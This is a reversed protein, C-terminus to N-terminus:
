IHCLLDEQMTNCYSVTVTKKAVWSPRKKLATKMASPTTSSSSFYAGKTAYNDNPFPITFKMKASASTTPFENGCSSDLNEKGSSQPELPRPNKCRLLSHTVRALAHSTNSQRTGPIRPLDPPGEPTDIIKGIDNNRANHNFASDLMFKLKKELPLSLYMLVCQYTPVPQPLNTNCKTYPSQNCKALAIKCINIFTLACSLKSMHVFLSIDVSRSYPFTESM